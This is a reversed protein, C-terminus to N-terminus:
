RKIGAEKLKAKMGIFTICLSEFLDEPGGKYCSRVSHDCNDLMWKISAWPEVTADQITPYDIKKEPENM